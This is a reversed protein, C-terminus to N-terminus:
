LHPAAVGGDGGAPAEEVGVGDKSCEEVGGDGGAPAEEVGVGDKRCEEVQEEPREELEGEEEAHAAENAQATGLRERVVSGVRELSLAEPRERELLFVDLLRQAAPEDAVALHAESVHHLEDSPRDRGLGDGLEAMLVTPDGIADQLLHHGCNRGASKRLTVVGLLAAHRVRALRERRAPLREEEVQHM